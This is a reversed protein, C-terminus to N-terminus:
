SLKRDHECLLEYPIQINPASDIQVDVINASKRFSPVLQDQAVKPFCFMTEAKQRVKQLLLTRISLRPWDGNNPLIIDPVVLGLRPCATRASKTKHRWASLCNLFLRPICKSTESMRRDSMPLWSLTVTGM